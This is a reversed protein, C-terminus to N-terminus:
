HAEEHIEARPKTHPRRQVAQAEAWMDEVDERMHAFGRRLKTSGEQTWHTVSQGFHTVLAEARQVNPREALTKYPANPMNTEQSLSRATHQMRRAVRGAWKGIRTGVENVLQDTKEYASLPPKNEDTM